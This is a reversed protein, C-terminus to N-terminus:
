EVVPAGALEGFDCVDVGDDAFDDVAVDAGGVAGDCTFEFFAEGVVFMGEEEIYVKVVRWGRWCMCMVGEGSLIVYRGVGEGRM